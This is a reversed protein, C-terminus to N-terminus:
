KTVRHPDRVNDRSITHPTGVQSPPKTRPGKTRLVDQAKQLADQLTDRYQDDAQELKDQLAQETDQADPIEDPLLATVLRGALGHLGASELQQMVVNATVCRRQLREIGILNRLQRESFRWCAAVPVDRYCASESGIDVAWGGSVRAVLRYCMGDRRRQWVQGERFRAAVRRLQGPQRVQMFDELRTFRALIKGSPEGMLFVGRRFRKEVAFDQMAELQRRTPRDQTTFNVYREDVRVKVWRGLLRKVLWDPYDSLEYPVRGRSMERLREADQGAFGFTEPHELVYQIHVEVAVGRGLEISDGTQTDLWFARYAM